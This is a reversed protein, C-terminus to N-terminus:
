EYNRVVVGIPFRVSGDDTRGFFKVTLLHERSECEPQNWWAWLKEKSERTGQMKAKFRTGGDTECIAILDEVGRQGLEFDDLAFEDTDFEKVKMLHSSRQGQAYHGDSLRIMAGEYGDKVWDDHCQMVEEKSGVQWNEVVTVHSYGIAKVTNFAHNLRDVQNGDSVIDYCRFKLKLSEPRQKKVAATIEQFTLEEHAYVEGDLIFPARIRGAALASTVETAIHGLTTYEKGSRSLFRVQGLSDVVLLARVGDLKPQVYCPYTVKKWDVQKALMPKVNGSADSNFRSLAVSLVEELSGSVLGDRSYSFADGPQDPGEERSHNILEVDLDELSKYGEDRKKRWDSQAQMLAQEQPHTENAKGINKGETIRERHCTLKGGLKGAEKVIAAYHGDMEVRVSWQQIAGTKTRKYLTDFKM